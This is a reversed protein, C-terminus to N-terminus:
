DSEALVGLVDAMGTVVAVGGKLVGYGAVTTGGTAAIIVDALGSLSASTISLAVAAGYLATAGDDGRRAAREARKTYSYADWGAGVAGVGPIMAKVFRQAVKKKGFVKTLLPKAMDLADRLAKVGAKYDNAGFLSIARDLNQLSAVIKGGRSLTDRGQKHKLAEAIGRSARLLGGRISGVFEKVEGWAQGLVGQRVERREKSSLQTSAQALNTDVGRSRLGVRLLNRTSAPLTPDALAKLSLEDSVDVREGLTHFASLTAVDEDPFRQQLKALASSPHPANKPSLSQVGDLDQLLRSGFDRQEAIQNGNPQALRLGSVELTPTQPRGVERLSIVGDGKKPGRDISGVM